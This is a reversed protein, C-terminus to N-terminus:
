FHTTKIKIVVYLATSAVVGVRVLIVVSYRSLYLSIYIYVTYVCEPPCYLRVAVALRRSMEDNEVM